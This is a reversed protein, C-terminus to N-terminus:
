LKIGLEDCVQKLKAKTHLGFDANYMWSFYGRDKAYIDKFNMDKYKGFCLFYEDGKKQIRKGSDLHSGTNQSYTKSIYEVDPIIDDYRELQSLFIEYTAETDAEATHANTLNKGCYFQYAATLDRKEKAHFITQVDINNKEETFLDIDCRLMEETLVPIDFRNSNYGALDSDAIFNRIEVAIEAFRPCDKVREDTIGHIDSVLKPIPIGPNILYYLSKRSQDPMIKLISIEVIKDKTIDLGTTELDFFALPRSLKLM